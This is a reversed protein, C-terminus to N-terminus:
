LVKSYKEIDAQVQSLQSANIQANNMLQNKNNQLQKLYVENGLGLNLLERATAIEKELNAIEKEVKKGAKILDSKTSKLVKVQSLVAKRSAGSLKLKAKEVKEAIYKEADELSGVGVWKCMNRIQLIAVLAVLVSLAVRSAIQWATGQPLLNFIPELKDSLLTWIYFAYEILSFGIGIIQQWYKRIWVFFNKIKQMKKKWGKATEIIIKGLEEGSKTPNETAIEIARMPKQHDVVTDIAIKNRKARKDVSNKIVKFLGIFVLILIIIAYITSIIDNDWDALWSLITATFIGGFIDWNLRILRYIRKFWKVMTGWCKEILNM